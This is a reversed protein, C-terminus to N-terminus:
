GACDFIFWRIVLKFKSSRFVIYKVFFLFGGYTKKPKTNSISRSACQIYDATASYQRSDRENRVRTTGAAM